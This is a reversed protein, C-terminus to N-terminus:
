AMVDSAMSLSEGEDLVMLGFVWTAFRKCPRSQMREKWFDMLLQSAMLSHVWCIVSRHSISKDGPVRITGTLGQSAETTKFVSPHTETM